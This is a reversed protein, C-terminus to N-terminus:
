AHPRKHYRWLILAHTWTDVDSHAYPHMCAREITRSSWSLTVHGSLHFGAEISRCFTELYISPSHAIHSHTREHGISHGSGRLASWQSQDRRHAKNHLRSAPAPRHYARISSSVAVAVNWVSPTCARVRKPLCSSPCACM